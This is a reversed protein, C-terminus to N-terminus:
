WYVEDGDAVEVWGSSTMTYTSGNVVSAAEPLPTRGRSIVEGLEVEKSPHNATITFGSKRWHQRDKSIYVYEDSVSQIRGTLEITGGGYPLVFQHGDVPDSLIEYLENYKDLQNLPIAITVTYVMYTGLVDNFYTKDLMRGSIDSSELKSQRKVTCPIEWATGDVSFM